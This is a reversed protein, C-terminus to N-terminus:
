AAARRIVDNAGRLKKARYDLIIQVASQACYTYVHDPHSESWAKTGELYCNVLDKGDARGKNFAIIVARVEDATATPKVIPDVKPKDKELAQARHERCVTYSTAAQKSPRRYLPKACIICAANPKM